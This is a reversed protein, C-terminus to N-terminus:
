PHLAPGQQPQLRRCNSDLHMQGVTQGAEGQHPECVDLDLFGPLAHARGDEVGAQFERVVLFDGDVQRRGVQGLVGATEVQRDRDADQGGAALHVGAPQAAMFEGALQREGPLQPRDTACQGHAQSQMGPRDVRAQDQWRFAGPLRCQHGARPDVPRLMKQVHHPVKQRGVLIARGCLGARAPAHDLRGPDGHLRHM